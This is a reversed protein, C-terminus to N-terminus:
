LPHCPDRQGEQCKAGSVTWIRERALCSAIMDNYSLVRLSSFCARSVFLSNRTSENMHWRPLPLHSPLTVETRRSLKESGMGSLGVM